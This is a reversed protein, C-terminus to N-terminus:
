TLSVPGDGYDQEYCAYHWMGNGRRLYERWGLFEIVSSLTWSGSTHFIFGAQQLSFDVREGRLKASSAVSLVTASLWHKMLIAVPKREPDTKRDAGEVDTLRCGGTPSHLDFRSVHLKVPMVGSGLFPFVGCKQFKTSTCSLVSPHISQLVSLCGTVRLFAFYFCYYDFM